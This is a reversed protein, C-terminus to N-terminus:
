RPLNNALPSVKPAELGLFARLLFLTLLRWRMLGCLVEGDQSVTVPPVYQLTAFTVQNLALEVEGPPKSHELVPYGSPLSVGEAEEILGEM